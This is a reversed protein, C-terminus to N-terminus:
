TLAAWFSEAHGARSCGLPAQSLWDVQRPRQSLQEEFPIATIPSPASSLISCELRDPKAAATGEGFGLSVGAAFRHV